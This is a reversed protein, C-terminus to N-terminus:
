ADPQTWRAWMARLVRAWRWWASAPARRTVPATPVVLRPTPEVPPTTVAARLSRLQQGGAAELRRTRSSPVPMVETPADPSLEEEAHEVPPPTTPATGDDFTDLDSLTRVHTRFPVRLADGGGPRAGRALDRQLDSRDTPHESSM